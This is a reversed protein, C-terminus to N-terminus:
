EPGEALARSATRHSCTTSPSCRRAAGSRRPGPRSRAPRRSSAARAQDPSSPPRDQAVGLGHGTAGLRRLRDRAEDRHMAELTGTLVWTQGDLPGAARAPAASAPWRVGVALLDDSRPAAGSRRLVRATVLSSRVSTPCRNWREVDGGPARRADRLAAGAAAGDSGRGRSHRACLHVAATTTKSRELAALLKAASKEGMRELGALQEATLRFLDAPERVLGRDVLQEILKDGLGEIDLALRSRFAQPRGEAARPLRAAGPAASVV